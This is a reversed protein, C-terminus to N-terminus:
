FMLALMDFEIRIGIPARSSKGRDLDETDQHYPKLMSVHFVPHYKVTPPLKVMYAVNGVRKEIPFSGEYKLILSKHLGKHRDLTSIKVLVLDGVQYEMHRQKKDAWKKMKKAAKNLCSRALENQDQWEKSFRYAAPSNRKYGTSIANPTLPQQGTVIEFPSRGTSESRGTFRGDRDSVISKPLGWYKVVHKLFLPTAVEAPCKAPALIFIDYKSFRDVVVLLISYGDSKPLGMIFDMSISEWPREPIPDM